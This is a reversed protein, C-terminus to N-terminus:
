AIAVRVGEHRGGGSEIEVDLGALVSLCTAAGGLTVEDFLYPSANAIGAGSDLSAAGGAAEVIYRIALEHSVVFTVAESRRLLNRLALAYRQGADDLSEGGPFRDSRAHTEKWAWYEAIAAGDFTGARVEDLAAELVLPVNRGELALQATERTRLFRTHVAVDIQINALQKGLTRAQRRGEATLVIPRSPDSSLVNAVNAASEAHRVFIFIRTV